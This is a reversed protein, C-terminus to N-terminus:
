RSGGEPAAPLPSALLAEVEAWAAYLDADARALDIRDHYWDEFRELVESLPGRGALLEARAADLAASGQPLVAERYRRRVTELRRGEALWRALEARAALETEHRRALYAEVEFRAEEIRPRERRARFFPLEIGVRAVLNPDAGDMLLLGGGVTFGPSLGAELAAVRSEAVLVRRHAIVAELTYPAATAPDIKPLVVDPLAAVRPIAGSAGGGALTALRAAAATLKADAAEVDLDHRSLELQAMLPAGLGTQGAGYLTSASAVLLDLLEHAESLAELERSLAYIEAWELRLDRLLRQEVGGAEAEALAIEAAALERAARRQGRGPLPQELVIMAEAPDHEGAPLFNRADVELRPDDLIGTAEAAARRAALEARAVALAPANALALREVEELSKPEFPGQHTMQGGAAGALAAVVAAVAALRRRVASM